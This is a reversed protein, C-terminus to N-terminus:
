KLKWPYFSNGFLPSDNKCNAEMKFIDLQNKDGACFLFGEGGNKHFYM